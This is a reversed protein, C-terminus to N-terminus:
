FRCDAFFEGLTQAARECNRRLRILEPFRAAPHRLAHRFVLMTDFHGDPRLAVNFDNAMDEGATDTVARVCYFPLNGAEARAAVGAAEMEVAIAGKAYLTKKETATQAVHDISAIVGSFAESSRPLVATKAGCPTISTAVVVDAIDLQPDLAGCFGTSVVADARFCGSAADVAAAARNWGAGHAALLVENGNLKGARAWDIGMSFPRHGEVFALLGRFELPISAVFLVRMLSRFNPGARALLEHVM